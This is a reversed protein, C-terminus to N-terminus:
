QRESETRQDDFGHRRTRLKVGRRTYKSQSVLSAGSHPQSASGPMVSSGVGKPDRPAASARPRSSHRSSRKPRGPYTTSTRYTPRRRRGDQISAPAQMTRTSVSLVRAALAAGRPPLMTRARQLPLLWPIDPTPLGRPICSEVDM